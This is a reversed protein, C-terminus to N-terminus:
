IEQRREKQGREIGSYVTKKVGVGKKGEKEKMIGDM